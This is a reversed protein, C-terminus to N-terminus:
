EFIHKTTLIHWSQPKNYRRQQSWKPQSPILVLRLKLSFTSQLCVVIHHFKAEFPWGKFFFAVVKNDHGSKKLWADKAQSGLRCSERAPRAHRKAHVGFPSSKRLSPLKLLFGCSLLSSPTRLDVLFGAQGIVYRYISWRVYHETREAGQRSRM